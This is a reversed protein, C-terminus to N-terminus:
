KEKSGKDVFCGPPAHLFTIFTSVGLVRNFVYYPKRDYPFFVGFVMVVCCLLRQGYDAKSMRGASLWEGEVV